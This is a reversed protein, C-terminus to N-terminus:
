IINNNDFINFPYGHNIINIICGLVHGLHPLLLKTSPVKSVGDCGIPLWKIFVVCVRFNFVNVHISQPNTSTYMSLFYDTFFVVKKFDWGWWIIHQRVPSFSFCNGKNLKWGRKGRRGERREKREERREVKQQERKEGRQVRRRVRRRVGLVM